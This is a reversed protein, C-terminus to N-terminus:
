ATLNFESQASFNKFYKAYPNNKIKIFDSAEISQETILWEVVEKMWHDKIVNLSVFNFPIDFPISEKHYNDSCILIKKLGKNM